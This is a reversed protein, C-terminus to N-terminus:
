SEEESQIGCICKCIEDPTMKPSLTYTGAKIKTNYKGIYMRALFLYKGDVLGNADMIMAVDRATNGSDITINMTEASGAKYPIDAFLKYSFHYSYVFGEVLAIILIANFLTRFIIGGFILLVNEKSEM